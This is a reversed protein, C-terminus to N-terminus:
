GQRLTALAGTKLYVVCGSGTRADLTAGAPLRLWSGPPYSGEADEFSGEIVFLEAGGDFRRPGPGADAAWRELKTVDPFPAEDFLTKSEVGRLDTKKWEHARTSTRRHPRSVADHSAYQRLKVFIVCGPESYPAHRFGDPNLLHTGAHADGTQDSFTGSLVFIEEGEPHPHEPFSAGPLYEVVSTVQGSEAGGVLHLRKRRVRSAPSSQWPMDQTHMVVRRTFDGNLSVPEELQTPEQTTM